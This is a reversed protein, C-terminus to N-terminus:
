GALKRRLMVSTINDGEGNNRSLATLAMLTDKCPLDKDLVEKIANNTLTNSLGDSCVLLQYEKPLTGTYFVPDVSKSGLAQLLTHEKRSEKVGKIRVGNFREVEAVTQDVTLCMVKNGDYLYARSDGVQAIVYEHNKILAFTLTSGFAKGTEYAISLLSEHVRQILRMMEAKIDLIELSKLEEKMRDFWLSIEKVTYGSAVEGAELGGVGDAIIAIFLRDASRLLKNDENNKKGADTFVAGQYIYKAM